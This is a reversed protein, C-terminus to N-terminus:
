SEVGGDVPTSKALLRKDLFYRDPDGDYCRGKLEGYPTVFDSRYDLEGSKGIVRPTVNLPGIAAYFIRQSVQVLDESM